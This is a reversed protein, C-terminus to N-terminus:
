LGTPLWFLLPRVVEAGIRPAFELSAYIRARAEVPWFDGWVQPESFHAQQATWKYKTEFYDWPKDTADYFCRGVEQWLGYDQAKLKQLQKSFDPNTSLDLDFRTIAPM